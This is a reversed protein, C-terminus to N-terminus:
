FNRTGEFVGVCISANVGFVAVTEGEEEANGVRGFDLADALLEGAVPTGDAGDAGLEGVVDDGVDFTELDFAVEDGALCRASEIEDAAGPAPIEVVGVAGLAGDDFAIEGVASEAVACVVAVVIVIRVSRMCVAPASTGCIRQRTVDDAVRERSRSAALPLDRGLECVQRVRFAPERGRQALEGRVPMGKVPSVIDRPSRGAPGSTLEDQRARITNRGRYHLITLTHSLLRPLIISRRLRERNRELSISLCMSHLNSILVRTKHDASKNQSLPQPEQSYM